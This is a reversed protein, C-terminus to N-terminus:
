EQVAEILPYMEHWNDTVSGVSSTESALGSGGGGPQKIGSSTSLSSSLDNGGALYPKLWTFEPTPAKRKSVGTFFYNLLLYRSSTNTRQNM